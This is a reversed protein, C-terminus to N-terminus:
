SITVLSRIKAGPTTTAVLGMFDWQQNPTPAITSPNLSVAVSPLPVPYTVSRPASITPFKPEGSSTMPRCMGGMMPKSKGAWLMGLAAVCIVAPIILLSVPKQQALMGGLSERSLESDLDCSLIAGM